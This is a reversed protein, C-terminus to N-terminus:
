RQWPHCVRRVVQFRCSSKKLMSETTRLAESVAFLGILVPIFSVGNLMDVLGFTFRPSGNLGDIGIMGLILGICASLLGRIVYDGSISAVISLGLCGMAFYEPSSFSLAIRALEPAIFTLCLASFIGGIFSAIASMGLAKGALGKKALPHGDFVTAAAAPTGPTNILIASISGGYIAGCYIGCLMVLGTTPPMSFTLPTLLAVGMTATLGPLAGIIIGGLTGAILIALVGPQLVIMFGHLLLEM